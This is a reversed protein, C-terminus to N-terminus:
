LCWPRSAHGPPLRSIGLCTALLAGWLPVSPPIATARALPTSPQWVGGVDAFSSMRPMGGSEDLYVEHGTIDIVDYRWPCDKYELWIDESPAPIVISNSPPLGRLWFTREQESAELAQAALYQTSRVDPMDAELVKQCTSWSRHFEDDVAAGCLPCLTSCVYGADFARQNTWLGSAMICLSLQAEPHM